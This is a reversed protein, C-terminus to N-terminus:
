LLPDLPHGLGSFFGADLGLLSITIAELPLRFLTTEGVTVDCAYFTLLLCALCLVGYFVAVEVSVFTTIAEGLAELAGLAELREISSTTISFSAVGTVL